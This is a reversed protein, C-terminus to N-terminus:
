GRLNRSLCKALATADARGAARFNHVFRAGAARAWTGEAYLAAVSGAQYNHHKLGAAIEASLETIEKTSMTKTM